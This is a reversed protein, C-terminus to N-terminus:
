GKEMVLERFRWKTFAKATQMLEKVRKAGNTGDFLEAGIVDQTEGQAIGDLLRLCKAYPKRDKDRLRTKATSLRRAKQYDHRLLDLLQSAQDVQDKIASDLRFKIVVEEPSHITLDNPATTEHALGYTQWQLTNPCFRVAEPMTSPHYLSLVMFYQCWYLYDSLEDADPETGPIPMENVWEM